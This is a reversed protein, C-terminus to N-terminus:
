FVQAWAEYDQLVGMPWLKIQSFEFFSHSFEGTSKHEWVMKLEGLNGSM